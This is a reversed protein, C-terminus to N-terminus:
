PRSVLDAYPGLVTQQGRVFTDPWSPVARGGELAHESYNLGLCLIREPAPVAPGFDQAPVRPRGPGAPRPRRGARGPRGRRLLRVVRLAPRRDGPRHRRLREPRVHLRPGNPTALTALRM